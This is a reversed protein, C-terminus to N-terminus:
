LPLGRAGARAVRALAEPEDALRTLAGVGGEAAEWFLIRRRAGAGIRESALEQEAIQFVAEVGRQLAFQLSALMAEELPAARALLLLNRTDRVLLRM